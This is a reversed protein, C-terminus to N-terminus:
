KLASLVLLTKGDPHLQINITEINNIDTEEILIVTEDSLQSIVKMLEKIKM